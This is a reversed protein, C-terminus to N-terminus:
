EASPRCAEERAFSRTRVAGITTTTPAYSKIRHDPLMQPRPTDMQLASESPERQPDEAESMISAAQKATEWAPPPRHMVKASTAKDPCANIHYFPLRSCFQHATSHDLDQRYCTSLGDRPAIRGAYGAPTPYDMPVRASQTRSTCRTTTRRRQRLTVPM